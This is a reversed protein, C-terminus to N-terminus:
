QSDVGYQFTGHGGVSCQVGFPANGTGAVISYTGSEPCTPMTLLDPALALTVANGVPYTSSRTAVRHAHIANGITQENARCTKRNADAIAMLIGIIMIAILLEVLTFGTTTLARQEAPLSSTLRMQLKNM